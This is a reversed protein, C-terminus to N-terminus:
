NEALRDGDECDEYKLGYELALLELKKKLVDDPRPGRDAYDFRIKGSIIIKIEQSTETGM